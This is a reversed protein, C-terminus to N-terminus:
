FDNDKQKPARKNLTAALKENEEMLTQKDSQLNAILKEAIALRTQFMIENRTMEEIRKNMIDIFMNIFEENM